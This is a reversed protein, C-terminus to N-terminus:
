IPQLVMPPRPIFLQQGGGHRYQPPRDPLWDCYADAVTSQLCIFDVKAKFKHLTYRGSPIALKDVHNSPFTFWNGLISGAKEKPRRYSDVESGKRIVRLNNVPKTFNIAQMWSVIRYPQSNIRLVWPPADTRATWLFSARFSVHFFRWAATMNQIYFPKPYEVEWGTAAILEDVTQPLRAM